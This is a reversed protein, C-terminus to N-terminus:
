ATAAGPPQLTTFGGGFLIQQRGTIPDAPALALTLVVANPNPNFGTDLSGDANLRALYNRTTPDDTGNSLQRTTFQGGLLIKGDKSQVALVKIQTKASSPNFLLSTALPSFNPDITGDSKLMALNTRSTATTAGNPQLSTFSGGILIRGSGDPMLVMASVPGNVNPDFTADLSGDANIRAINNRFGGVTGNPKLLTFNGALLIKGDPQIATTYVVGDVNPDFGDAASPTNGQAWLAAPSVALLAAGAISIRRLFSNLFSVIRM